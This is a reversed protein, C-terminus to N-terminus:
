ARFDYSQPALYSPTVREATATFDIGDHSKGSAIVWRLDFDLDLLYIALGYAKLNFLYTGTSPNISSCSQNTNDMAIVITGAPATQLNAAAGPLDQAKVVVFQFVFIFVLLFQRGPASFLKM